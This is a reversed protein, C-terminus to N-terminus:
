RTQSSEVEVLVLTHILAGTAVFNVFRLSTISGTLRDQGEDRHNTGDDEEKYNRDAASTFRACLRDCGEDCQLACPHCAKVNVLQDVQYSISM